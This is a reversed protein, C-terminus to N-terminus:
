EPSRTGVPLEDPGSTTYQNLSGGISRGFPDFVGKVQARRGDSYISFVVIYRYYFLNSQPGPYQPPALITAGIMSNNPGVGMAVLSVLTGASDIQMHTTDPYAGIGTGTVTGSGGWVNQPFISTWMTSGTKVLALATPLFTNGGAAFTGLSAPTTGSNTADTSATTNHNIFKMGVRFLSNLSKDTTAYTVTTPILQTPLNGVADTGGVLGGAGAASTPGSYLAPATAASSSDILSDLGSPLTETQALYLQINQGLDGATEAGVANNASRRIWDIKSVVTGAIIAIIAIVVVLELLTFGAQRNRAKALFTNKRGSFLPRVAAPSTLTKM